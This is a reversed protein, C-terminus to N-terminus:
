VASKKELLYLMYSHKGLFTLVRLKESKVHHFLIVMAFALMVSSVNSIVLSSTRNLYNSIGGVVFFAVMTSLQAWKPFTYKKYNVAYSFLVGLLFAWMCYTGHGWITPVLPRTVVFILVLALVGHTVKSFLSFAIYFVIYCFYQYSIYWLTSDIGNNSSLCLIDPFLATLDTYFVGTNYYRNLCQVIFAICQVIAAPVVINQFKKDWYRDLGNKLFSSFLGYGSLLLFVCMCGYCFVRVIQTNGLIPIGDFTGFWNQAHVAIVSLAAIGKLVTSDQKSLYSDNM